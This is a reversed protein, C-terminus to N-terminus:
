GQIEEFEVDEAQEKIQNLMIRQERTFKQTPTGFIRVLGEERVRGENDVFGTHFVFDALNPVFMEFFYMVNNRLNREPM